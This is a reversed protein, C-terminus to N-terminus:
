INGTSGWIYLPSPGLKDPLLSPSHCVTVCHQHSPMSYVLHTLSLHSVGSRPWPSWGTPPAPLGPHASALGRWWVSVQSSLPLPDLHLDRLPLHPLELKGQGKFGWVVCPLASQPAKRRITLPTRSRADTHWRVYGLPSPRVRSVGEWRPILLQPPLLQPPALGHTGRGSSTVVPPAGWVHSSSSQSQLLSLAWLLPAWYNMHGGSYLQPGRM